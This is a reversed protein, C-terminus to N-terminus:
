GTLKLGYARYLTQDVSNGAQDTAKVRLSVAGTTNEIRPHHVTAQLFGNGLQVLDIQKWTGGDNFSVWAQTSKIAPGAAGPIHGASLRFTYDSRDAARNLEDLPLDFNVQPLAPHEDKDAAPRSSAFTWTTITETSYSSWANARKANLVLRYTAPTALAPFTGFPPTATEKLLQAGSFLQTRFVDGTSGWGYHGGADSHPFVAMAFEDETRSVQPDFTAAPGPRSVRGFWNETLLAKPQYQTFASDFEGDFPTHSWSLHWWRTDNASV